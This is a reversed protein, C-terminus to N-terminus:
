RRRRAAGSRAAAARTRQTGARACAPLQALAQVFAPTFAAGHESAAARRRASRVYLDAPLVMDLWRTVSDRFSAVM